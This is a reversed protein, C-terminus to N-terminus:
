LYGQKVLFSAISEPTMGGVVNLRKKDILVRIYGTAADETGGIFVRDLQKSKFTQPVDLKKFVEYFTTSALVMRKIFGLEINDQMISYEEVLYNQNNRYKLSLIVPKSLNRNVKDQQYQINFDAFEKVEKLMKQIDETADRRSAYANINDINLTSDKLFPNDIEDLFFKAVGKKTRFIEKEIQITKNLDPFYVDTWTREYYGLKLFDTIIFDSNRSKVTFLVKGGLTKFTLDVIAQLKKTEGEIKAIPTKDNYIVDDDFKFKFKQANAHSLANCTLLVLLLKKM